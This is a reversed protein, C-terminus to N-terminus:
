AAVMLVLGLVVTQTGEGETGAYDSPFLHYPKSGQARVVARVARALERAQRIVVSSSVRSPTIRVWSPSVSVVM